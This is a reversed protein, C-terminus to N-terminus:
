SWISAPVNISAATAVQPFIILETHGTALIEESREYGCLSCTQVQIGNVECTPASIVSMEGYEHLCKAQKNKKIAKSILITGGTLIAVALVGGIIALILKLKKSM